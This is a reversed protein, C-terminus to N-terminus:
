LLTIDCAHMCSTTSNPVPLRRVITCGSGRRPATSLTGSPRTGSDCCLVAGALQALAWFASLECIHGHMDIRATAYQYGFRRHALRTKDPHFDILDLVTSGRSNYIYTVIRCYVPEPRQKRVAAGRGDGTGACADARGPAGAAAAVARCADRFAPGPHRVADATM